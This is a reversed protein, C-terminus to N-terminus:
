TALLFDRKGVIKGYKEFHSTISKKLELANSNTPFNKVGVRCKLINPDNLNLGDSANDMM